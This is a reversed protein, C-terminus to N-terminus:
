GSPWYEGLYYLLNAGMDTKLHAGNTLYLYQIPDDLTPM